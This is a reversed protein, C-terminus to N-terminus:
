KFLTFGVVTNAGKQLIQTGIDKITSGSTAKDDVVLINAGTFGFMENIEIFNSIFRRWHGGNRMAKINFPKGNQKDIERRLEEREKEPLNGSIKIRSTDTTKKAVDRHYVIVNPYVDRIAEAYDHALSSSSPAVVIADFYPFGNNSSIIKMAKATYDACASLLNTYQEDNGVMKNKILNVISDKTKKADLSTSYCSYVKFSSQHPTLEYPTNKADKGFRTSIQPKDYEPNKKKFKSGTSAPIMKLPMATPKMDIDAYNEEEGQDDVRTKKIINEFLIDLKRM